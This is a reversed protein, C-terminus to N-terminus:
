EHKAEDPATGPHTDEPEAPKLQSSEFKGQGPDVQTVEGRANHFMAPRSMALRFYYTEGPKMDLASGNGTLTSTITHQGAPVTVTFFRGNRMRGVQAGDVYVSPKLLAAYNERLRYFYITVTSGAPAQSAAPAAPAAPTAPTQSVALFPALLLGLAALRFKRM